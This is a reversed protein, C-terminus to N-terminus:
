GMIAGIDLNKFIKQTKDNGLLLTEQEWVKQVVYRFLIKVYMRYLPQFLSVLELAM